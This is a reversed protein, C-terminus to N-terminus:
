ARHRRRERRGAEIGGRGIGRGAQSFGHEGLTIGRSGWDAKVWQYAQIYEAPWILDFREGLFAFHHTITQRATSLGATESVIRDIERLLGPDRSMQRAQKAWAAAKKFDSGSVSSAQRYAEHEAKTDLGMYAHGRASALLYAQKVFEQELMSYSLTFYGVGLVLRDHRWSRWRRQRMRLTFLISRAFVITGFAYRNQSLKMSLWLRLERAKHIHRM